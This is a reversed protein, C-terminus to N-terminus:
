QGVTVDCYRERSDEEPNSRNGLRVGRLLRVAVPNSRYRVGVPRGRLLNSVKFRRSKLPLEGVWKVTVVTVDSPRSRVIPYTQQGCARLELNFRSHDDLVTLAQCPGEPTTVYRKFDM